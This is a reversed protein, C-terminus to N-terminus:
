AFRSLSKFFSDKASQRYGRSIPISSGNDMIFCSETFRDIRDFNIWYSNHCRIFREAGATLLEGPHQGTFIDGDDTEIRTKRARREMCVVSSVGLSVLEREQRVFLRDRGLRDEELKRLAKDLAAALKTDADQKLVFYIHETNYVETAYDIFSTLFIVKCGPRLANIRRALEIGDVDGMKIDLVAIDPALASSELEELMFLPECFDSLTIEHGALCSEVLKLTNGLHLKDDDCVAINLM